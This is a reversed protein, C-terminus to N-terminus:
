FTSMQVRRWQPTGANNMLIYFYGTTGDYNVDGVKDKAANIDTSSTPIKGVKRGGVFINILNDFDGIDAERKRIIEQLVYTIDGINSSPLKPYEEM